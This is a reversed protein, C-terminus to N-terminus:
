IITAAAVKRKKTAREDDVVSPTGGELDMSRLSSIDDLDEMQMDELIKQMQLPTLRSKTPPAKVKPSLPQLKYYACFKNCEHEDCFSL